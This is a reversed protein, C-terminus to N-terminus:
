IYSVSWDGPGRVDLRKSVEAYLTLNLPGGTGPAFGADQFRGARQYQLQLNDCREDVRFGIYAGQGVIASQRAIDIGAAGAVLMSPLTPPVGAPGNKCAEAARDLGVSELAMYPATNIQGWTDATGM